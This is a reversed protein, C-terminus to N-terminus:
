RPQTLDSCDGLKQERARLEYESLTDGYGKLGAPRPIDEAHTTMYRRWLNVAERRDAADCSRSLVWTLLPLAGDDGRSWTRMWQLMLVNNPGSGYFADLALAKAARWDGLEALPLLRKREDPTLWAAQSPSSPQSTEASIRDPASTTPQRCALLSALCAAALALRFPTTTQM